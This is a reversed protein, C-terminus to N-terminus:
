GDRLRPADETLDRYEGEIVAPSAARRLGLKAALYERLRRRLGPVLLPLAVADSLFGPIILLVGALSLCVADFFAPLPTEGREMAARARALIGFGGRRLLLIGGILGAALLLLTPGAGIADAVTITIVIEAIPVALLALRILLGM